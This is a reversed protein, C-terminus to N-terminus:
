GGGLIRGTTMDMQVSGGSTSVSVILQGNNGLILEIGTPTGGNQEQAIEFYRSVPLKTLLKKSLADLVKPDVKGKDTIEKIRKELVLGGSTGSIEKELIWGDRTMFYFGWIQNKAPGKTEFRGLVLTLGSTNTQAIALAEQFNVKPPDQAAARASSLACVTLAILMTRM